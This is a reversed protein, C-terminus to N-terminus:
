NSNQIANNITKELDINKLNLLDEIDASIFCEKQIDALKWLEKIDIILAEINLKWSAEKVKSAKLMGTADNDAVIILQKPNLLKLGNTIEENSYTQFSIASYGTQIVRYANKAGETVIHCGETFRLSCFPILTESIGYCWSYSNM